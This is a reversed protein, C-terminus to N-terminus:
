SGRHLSQPNPSRTFKDVFDEMGKVGIRLDEIKMNTIMNSKNINSKRGAGRICMDRISKSDFVLIASSLEVGIIEKTVKKLASVLRDKNSHNSEDPHYYIFYYGKSDILDEAKFAVSNQTRAKVQVPYFDDEGHQFILDWRRNNGGMQWVPIGRKQLEYCVLYEAANGKHQSNTTSM